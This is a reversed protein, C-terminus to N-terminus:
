AVMWVFSFSIVFGLFFGAIVQGLTHRRLILRSTGILGAILFLGMFMFYPNVREVFFSVAMAGGILGGIGFMHASIKWFLTIIIAIIMIAVSASMQMLFWKPMAMRYYFFIMICYSILSILYPLFREKRIKLSLDSIAGLKYILFILIAPVVFSFLVVPLMIQWFQHSYVTGFYTYIFLLMVGYIPMLLPQFVTSIIHAISKM